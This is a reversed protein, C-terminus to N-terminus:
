GEGRGWMWSEEEWMKLRESKGAREELNLDPLGEELFIVRAQGGHGLWKLKSGKISNSYGMLETQGVPSHM